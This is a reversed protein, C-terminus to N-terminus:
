IVLTSTKDTNDAILKFSLCSSSHPIPSHTSSLLSTNLNSIFSDNHSLDPDVTGFVGDTGTENSDDSCTIPSMIPAEIGTSSSDNDASVSMVLIFM